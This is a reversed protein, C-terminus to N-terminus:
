AALYVAGALDDAMEISGDALVMLASAHHRELVPTAATGALMVVKTLADATMCTPACVTAALITAAPARTCPDIVATGSATASHVPDFSRGSSALAQDAIRLALLLRAPDRPDRVHVTSPQAGIAALDGGANVLAQTVGHARLAAIARDVAFGKAIGGLDIRLGPRHFRVRGEPLLDIEASTAAAEAAPRQDAGRSPLLRLTQLAPAVAIDFVGGSCAHFDLAQTIVEFTWPHVAVPRAWAQANLRSVDSPAEHFSMLAHVRAVEAFAAEIAASAEEASRDAVTIEVFTGLLPRARRVSNSAPFL